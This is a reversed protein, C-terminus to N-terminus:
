RKGDDKVKEFVKKYAPLSKLPINFMNLTTVPTLRYLGDMLISDWGVIMRKRKIKLRATIKKAMKVPSMGVKNTANISEQDQNRFVNTKTTGPCVLGVYVQGRLEERMVETYAKLAAKSASYISNGVMPACAASSSINIIAPNKSNVLHKIFIGCGYVAGMFNVQLNKDFEKFNYNCFKDFRPLAGANNILMDVQYGREEVLKLSNEWDSIKTIDLLVYDFNISKEGFSNKFKILENENRAGVIVFCNYKEIFLKTLEKGIGSTAGTIFVTSNYLWNRKM